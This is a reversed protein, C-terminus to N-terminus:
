LKGGRTKAREEKKIAGRRWEAGEGRQREGKLKGAM